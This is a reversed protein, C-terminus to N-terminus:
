WSRAVEQDVQRRTARLAEDVTQQGTWLAEINKRLLSKAQQAGPVNPEPVAYALADLFPRLNPDGGAGLLRRMDGARGTLSGVSAQLASMRTTGRVKETNLWRLFEWAEDPHRSATNVGLMFGTSLTARRGGAGPLPVPAVGVDRYAPGMLAKLNATWWGASIVMAVQGSAFAQYVNVGPASAGRDVLRRELEFVTRGAPSDIATRRGDASVFRGGAANLLALTQGVTTSDDFASLGFGQVLTNGYRDQRATRYAAEELEPWTRPPGHVGAERLLRRNYYLAYTQMETPYGYVRGAVSASGAAAAGYGRGIEEAHEPPAPRLVGARVLQGNWLCYPHLIDTGQGAAQRVMFTTLLDTFEVAKTRVKVRDHLANWEDVPGQLAKKLEGSAYHSLLTLVIPDGPRGTGRHPAACGSVLLASPLALAFHRRSLSPTM